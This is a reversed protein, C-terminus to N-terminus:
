RRQSACRFPVCLVSRQELRRLVSPMGLLDRDALAEDGGLMRQEQLAHPQRPSRGFALREGGTGRQAARHPRRRGRGAAPSGLRAGSVTVASDLLANCPRTSTGSAPWHASSIAQFTRSRRKTPITPSRERDDEDM